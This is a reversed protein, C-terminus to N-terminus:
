EDVEIIENALISSIGSALISVFFVFLSIFIMNVVIFQVSSSDSSVLKAPLDTLKSLISYIFGYAFVFLFYNINLSRKFFSFSFLKFLSKFGEKFTRAYILTAFILIYEYWFLIALIFFPIALFSYTKSMELIILWILGLLFIASIYGFGIFFSNFFSEGFKINKINEKLEELSYSDRLIKGYFITNSLALAFLVGTLLMIAIILIYTDDRDILNSLPTSIFAIGMFLSIYYGLSLYVVKPNSKVIEIVLKYTNIIPSLSYTKLFDNRKLEKQKKQNLRSIQKMRFFFFLISLILAGGITTSVFSSSSSNDNLTNITSNLEDCADSYGGECSKRFFAISKSKNSETGIADRYMVGLNNCAEYDNLKCSETFPILAKTSNRDLGYWGFRYIGGLNYCGTADYDDCSKKFLNIAMSINKDVGKAEGYLLGLNSCSISSGLDCGIQYYKFAKKYDQKVGNGYKYIQGVQNCSEYKEYGDAKKNGCIEKHLKLAIAGNKEVGQGSEYMRALHYCGFTSGEDCSKKFIDVARKYDQEFYNGDRYEIGISVCGLKKPSKCTTEFLNIAKTINKDIGKAHYYIYGLELCGEMYSSNCLKTFYKYAKLDAEKTWRKYSYTYAIDFCQSMSKIDTSNCLREEKSSDILNIIEIKDLGGVVRNVIKGNEFVITTPLAEIKFEKSLERNNDNDVLAFLVEKDFSESLSKFKPKTYRCTGCWPATFM